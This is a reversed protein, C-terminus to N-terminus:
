RVAFCWTNFTVLDSLNGLGSSEFKLVMSGTATETVRSWASSGYDGGTIAWGYALVQASTAQVNDSSFTPLTISVGTYAVNGVTMSEKSVSHYERLFAINAATGSLKTQALFQARVTSNIYTLLYKQMQSLALQTAIPFGNQSIVGQADPNTLPLLNTVGNLPGTMTDGAVQVGGLGNDNSNGMYTWDTNSSNRVYMNGSTPLNWQQTALVGTTPETDGVWTWGYLTTAAM